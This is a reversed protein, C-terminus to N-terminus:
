MANINRDRALGKNDVEMRNCKKASEEAFAMQKVNSYCLTSLTNKWFIL